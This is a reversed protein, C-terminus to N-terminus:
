RLLNLEVGMCFSLIVAEYIKVETNKSVLCFLFMQMACYYTNGSNLRSNIEEHISSKNTVTMGFYKFEAM